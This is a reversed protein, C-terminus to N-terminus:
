QLERVHSAIVKAIDNVSTNTPDNIIKVPNYGRDVLNDYTITTETVHQGTPSLDEGDILPNHIFYILASKNPPPLEPWLRADDIVIFRTLETTNILIDCNYELISTFYNEYYDRCADGVAQMLQRIKPNTTKLKHIQEIPKSVITSTIHYIPTAYSLKIFSRDYATLADAISTKGSGKKGCLFVVKNTDIDVTHPKIETLM